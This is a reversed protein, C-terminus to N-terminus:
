SLPGAISGYTSKLSKTSKYLTSLGLLRSILPLIAAREDLGADCCFAAFLGSPNLVPAGRMFSKAKLLNTGIGNYKSFFEGVRPDIDKYIPHGFGCHDESYKIVSFEKEKQFLKIAKEFSLHKDGVCAFFASAGSAIGASESACLFAGSSPPEVPDDYLWFLALIAYLSKKDANSLHPNIENVFREVIGEM